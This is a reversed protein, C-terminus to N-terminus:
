TTDFLEPSKFYPTGVDSHADRSDGLASVFGFDGLKAIPVPVNGAMIPANGAVFSVLINDPKIDRHALGNGHLFALGRASDRMLRLITRQAAPEPDYLELHARFFHNLSGGECNEMVILVYLSLSAEVALVQAINPHLCAIMQQHRCAERSATAADIDARRRDLCKVVVDRNDVEDRGQRVVSFRGQSMVQSNFDTTYRNKIKLIAPRAALCNIMAM